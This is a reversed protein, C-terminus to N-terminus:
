AFVLDENHRQRHKTLAEEINKSLRLSSVDLIPKVFERLVEPPLLSDIDDIDITFGRPIPHDIMSILLEEDRTIMKKDIARKVIKAHLPSLVNLLPKYIKDRRSLRVYRELGTEAEPFSTSEVQKTESEVM